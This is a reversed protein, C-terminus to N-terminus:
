GGRGDLLYGRGRVTVIGRRGFPQDIKRRLASVHVEVVNVDGAYHADWVQALIDAKRVAQDPRCALCELVGFERATLEIPTVGRRCSRAGPDIVLDGFTLVVPAPRARRTLTRLRALLVRYSFPKTLYDDAGTELGEVEDLEGDKATLMLIPTHNGARRLQACVKYGNLGPLMIDLVIAAYDEEQALWLADRGDHVVEVTFAHSELGWKLAAALRREDEVVLVRM